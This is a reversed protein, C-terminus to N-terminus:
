EGCRKHLSRVFCVHQSSQHTTLFYKNRWSEELESWGAKTNRKVDLEGMAQLALRAEVMWNDILFSSDIKPQETTTQVSCCLLAFYYLSSFGSSLHTPASILRLLLWHCSLDCKEVWHTLHETQSTFDCHCRNTMPFITKRAPSADRERTLSSPLIKVRREDPHSTTTSHQFNKLNSDLLGRCQKKGSMVSHM